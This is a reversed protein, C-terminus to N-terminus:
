RFLIDWHDSEDAYLTGSPSRYLRAGDGRVGRPSSHQHIYRDICNNHSIDLKYGKGHSYRGPAHGTETGGTVMIPCGSKHRLRIIQAITGTRITDLSTCTSVRRDTCHGTSKYRLGAGLLYHEAHAHSMRVTAHRPIVRSLDLNLLTGRGSAARVGRRPRKVADLLHYTRIVVPPTLRQEGDPTMPAAAATQALAIISIEIGLLVAVVPRVTGRIWM